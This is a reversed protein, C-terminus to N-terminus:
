ALVIRTVDDGTQADVVKFAVAQAAWSRLTELSVYRGAAADYLRSPSYRTIIVPSAATVDPM